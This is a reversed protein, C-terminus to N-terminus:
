NIIELTDKIDSPIADKWVYKNKLVYNNYTSATRNARNRAQSAWSKQEESDSNHYQEYMLKDSEYSAIMARATNEVEKLTKYNTADDVKHVAYQNINIIGRGVPSCAYLLLIIVMIIITVAIAKVVRIFRREEETYM